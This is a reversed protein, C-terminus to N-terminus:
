EKRSKKYLTVVIGMMAISMIVMILGVNSVDGTKPLETESGIDSHPKGNETAGESDSPETTDTSGDPNSPKTPDKAEGNYAIAIPSLSNAVIRIGQECNTSKLIEVDGKSKGEHNESTITHSIVFETDKDTGEPYPLYIVKGKDPFKDDQVEAWDDEGSKIVLEVDLYDIDATKWNKYDFSTDKMEQKIENLSKDLEAPAETLDRMEVGYTTFCIYPSEIPVSAGGSVLSGGVFPGGQDWLLDTGKYESPLTVKPTNEPNSIKEVWQKIEGNPYELMILAKDYIAKLWYRPGIYIAYDGKGESSDKIKGETIQNWHVAYNQFKFENVDEGDLKCLEDEMAEIAQTDSDSDPTKTNVYYLDETQVPIYYEEVPEDYAIMQRTVFVPSVWDESGDSSETLYQAAGVVEKVNASPYESWPVEPNTAWGYINESPINSPINEIYLDALKKSGDVVLNVSKEEITNGNLYKYVFTLPLENYLAEIQMSNYLGEIKQDVEPSVRWESFEYGHDKAAPLDKEVIEYVDGYTANGNQSDVVIPKKSRVPEQKSNYYVIDVLVIVRGKYDAGYYVAGGRAPQSLDAGNFSSGDVTWGQFYEKIGDYHNEKGPALKKGEDIAEQYTMRDGNEKILSIQDAHWAVEGDAGYYTYEFIMKDPDLESDGGPNGDGESNDFAAEIFFDKKPFDTHELLNGTILDGYNSPGPDGPIKIQWGLFKAFNPEDVEVEINVIEEEQYTWKSGDFNLMISGNKGDEETFTVDGADKAKIFKVRGQLSSIGVNQIMNEEAFSLTPVSLVSLALIMATFVAIVKKM